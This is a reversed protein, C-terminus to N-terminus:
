RVLRHKRIFRTPDLYGTTDTSYGGGIPMDPIHRIELHLHAPYVGHNDGITGIPVGRRVYTEPRVFMTDLHAYLSEVNPYATGEPLQHRIRVVKGWGGFIDEAFTIYGDAIAYVTDGLDTNGGGTGNWDDGLHTNKRFKQANYYGKADPPGVPYDFRRAIYSTDFVFSISDPSTTNPRHPSLASGCSILVLTLLVILRSM